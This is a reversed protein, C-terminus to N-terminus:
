KLNKVQQELLRIREEQNDIRTAQEKISEVLVPILGIYDVHYYGTSDKHVLEPFVKQLDQALFGLRKDQQKAQLGKANIEEFLRVEAVEKETLDAAKKTSMQTQESKQPITYNYSVGNLQRVLSYASDLPNINTKYREDSTIMVGQSYVDCNFTFKNGELMDYYAFVSDRQWTFYIGKKGHLWLRDTDTSGYEGIFANWGQVDYRGFDGFALKSGARASTNKGMLQLTLVGNADDSSKEQGIVVRGNQKVLIQANAILACLM